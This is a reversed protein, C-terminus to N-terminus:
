VMSSAVNLKSSRWFIACGDGQSSYELCPSKPKPYFVGSYGRAFLEPQFYDDFHDCEELAVIDPDHITIYHLLKTKRFDFSLIEATLRSFEGLDPRLGSLGDALINFQLVRILNGPKDGEKLLSIM